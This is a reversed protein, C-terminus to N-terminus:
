SSKRERKWAREAGRLSVAFLIESRSERNRGRFARSRDVLTRGLCLSLRYQQFIYKRCLSKQPILNREKRFRKVVNSKIRPMSGFKRTTDFRRRPKVLYHPPKLGRRARSVFTLLNLSSISGRSTEKWLRARAPRQATYGLRGPSSKQSRSSYKGQLVLFRAAMTGFPSRPLPFLPFLRLSCVRGFFISRGTM